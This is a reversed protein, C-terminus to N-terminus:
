PSIPGIRKVAEPKVAEPKAAEQLLWDRLLRGDRRRLVHPSWHIRYEGFSLPPLDFPCILEGTALQAAVFRQEVLGVGQGALTAQIASDDLDFSDADNLPLDPLGIRDALLRWDWGDPTNLLLPLRRLMTLQLPPRRRGLLAPVCALISGDAFLLDSDPGQERRPIDRGPIGHGQGPIPILRRYRIMVDATGPDMAATSSIALDLKLAPQQRKLDILRPMLWRLYLSSSVQLRLTDGRGRNPQMRQLLDFAQQALPLLKRGHDTLHVAQAERRFLITGLAEELLKVQRSVAGPSVNLEAAARAFGQHRAAAEFARVANLPPLHRSEGKHDGGHTSGRPPDAPESFSLRPPTKRRQARSRNEAM